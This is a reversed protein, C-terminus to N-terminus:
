QADRVYRVSLFHMDKLVKIRNVANKGPTIMRVWAAAEQNVELDTSTWYYGYDYPHYLGISSNIYNCIEGGYRFDLCTGEGSQCMLYSGGDRWGEADVNEVGLTRELAKFDDDTPLRWGDPAYEVAEEYSYYNGFTSYYKKQMDIDGGTLELYDGFRNVWKPNDRDEYFPADCHLNETMWDQNGIRVWGYENGDKDVLTGTAAPVVNPLSDDDSCSAFSCAVLLMLFSMWSLIMNNKKM